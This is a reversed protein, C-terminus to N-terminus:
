TAASSLIILAVISAALEKEQQVQSLIPVSSVPTFLKCCLQSAALSTQM